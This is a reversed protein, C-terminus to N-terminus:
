NEKRGLGQLARMEGLVPRGEHLGEVYSKEILVWESMEQSTHPVGRGQSKPVHNCRRGLPCDNQCVVLGVRFPAVDQMCWWM